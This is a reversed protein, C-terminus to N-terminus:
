QEDAHPEAKQTVGYFRLYLARGGGPPHQPARYRQDYRVGTEGKKAFGDDPASLAPLSPQVMVYRVM